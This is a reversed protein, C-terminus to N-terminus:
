LGEFRYSLGGYVSISPGPVVFREPNLGTGTLTNRSLSGFTVYRNDTLNNLLVFATMRGGPVPREYAIRM